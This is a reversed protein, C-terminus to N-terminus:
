KQPPQTWHHFYALTLTEGAAICVYIISACIHLLYFLSLLNTLLVDTFVRAGLALPSLLRKTWGNNGCGRTVVIILYIFVSWLMLSSSQATSGSHIVLCTGNSEGKQWQPKATARREGSMGGRGKISGISMPVQLDDFRPLSVLICSQLVGIWDKCM